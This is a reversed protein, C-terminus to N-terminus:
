PQREKPRRKPPLEVAAVPLPMWKVPDYDPCDHNDDLWADSALVTEGWHCIFVWGTADMALFRSKWGDKPATAIPQWTM